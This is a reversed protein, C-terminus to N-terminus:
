HTMNIGSPVAFMRRCPTNILADLDAARRLLDNFDRATSDVPDSVSLFEIDTSSQTNGVLFGSLPATFPGFDVPTIHLFGTDSERGHCSNCTALSFQHRAQNNNIGDANWFDSSDYEIGGGLFSQGNYDLPVVHTGSLIDNEFQNIFDALLGTGNISADPTQKITAQHLFGELAFERLEWPRSFVFDNTRLQNLASGNPKEPDANARVIEETLRELAENYEPTGLTFQDLKKWRIGWEQTEECSRKKVGFEFIVTFRQASCTEPDVLGFVFRLEGANNSAEQGYISDGRLDPRNVIALLRFPAKALDLRGDGDKPWANILQQVGNSRNPVVWNNVTQDNEWNMLWKMAFDAANIGTVPENAMETMLYGFSWTGMSKSDCSTRTRTEDQVVKPDRVLLSHDASINAPNGASNIRIPVNPTIEKIPPFKKFGAFQRGSFVPFTGGKKMQPTLVDEEKLFTQGTFIGDGKARDGNQGSDSFEVPTKEDLQITFNEPLRERGSFKLSLVVNGSETPKDLFTATFDEIQPLKGVSVKQGSSIISTGMLVILTMTIKFCNTRLM